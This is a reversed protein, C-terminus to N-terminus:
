TLACSNKRDPTHADQRQSPRGARAVSRNARLCGDIEEALGYWAAPLQMSACTADPGAGAACLRYQRGATQLVWEEYGAIWRLALPLCTPVGTRKGQSFLNATWGDQLTATRPVFSFRNLYVGEVAGCYMGFGWLKLLSGDRLRTSYQSCGSVEKPPRLRELGYELLLNGETRRIDQGWLWCQLNLLAAGRKSVRFPLLARETARSDTDTM